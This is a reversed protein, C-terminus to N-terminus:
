LFKCKNSGMEVEKEERGSAFTLGELHVIFKIEEQKSPSMVERGLIELELKM